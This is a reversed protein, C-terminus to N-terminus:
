VNQLVRETNVHTNQYIYIYATNCIGQALGLELYYKMTKPQVSRIEFGCDVANLTPM